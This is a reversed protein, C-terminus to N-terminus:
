YKEIIMYRMLMIKMNQIIVLLIKKYLYLSSYINPLQVVIYTDWLLEAYRPIKFTFHSPSNYNLVRQGEFDLRFRQLGFNTYKKYIQKFFTKSPNGNLILNESGYSIINLLGGPM